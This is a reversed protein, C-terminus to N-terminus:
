VAQRKIHLEWTVLGINKQTFSENIKEQLESASMKHAKIFERPFVDQRYNIRMKKIVDGIQLGTNKFPSQDLLKHVILADSKPDINFEIGHNINVRSNTNVNAKYCEHIETKLIHACTLVLRPHILTGSVSTFKTPFGNKYQLKCRIRGVCKNRAERDTVGFTNKNVKELEKKKEIDNVNMNLHSESSEYSPPPPKLEKPLYEHETSSCVTSVVSSENSDEYTEENSEEDIMVTYMNSEHLPPM